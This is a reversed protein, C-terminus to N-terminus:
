SAERVVKIANIGRHLRRYGLREYIGYAGTPNDADVGIMSSDFGADAFAHLSHIVLAAAIGRRRYARLTGLSDVWGDDRGTVQRDDPYHSNLCYAVVGGHEGVAPDVAVFSLDLRRAPARVVGKIWAEVSRPTSGWHDAFAANYVHSSAVDHGDAWPVIEVGDLDPIPPLDALPRQLEDFYRADAYGFRRILPVKHEEFDFRDTLLVAQLHVPTRSLREVARHEQWAFMTRGLGRGRHDPHIGGDLFARELREGAPSHHVFGWGVLGHGSPHDIVRLDDLATGDPSDWFEEVEDRTMLFPRGDARYITNILEHLPGVDDPTPPRM